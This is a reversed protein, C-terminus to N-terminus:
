VSGLVGGVVLGVLCAGCTSVCGAGKGSLKREAGAKEPRPEM